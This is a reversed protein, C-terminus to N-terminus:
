KNEETPRLVCFPYLCEDRCCECVANVGPTLTVQTQPNIRPPHLEPALIPLQENVRDDEAGLWPRGRAKRNRRQRQQNAASGFPERPTFGAARIAANWSGFRDFVLSFWPWHGDVTEWRRARADDHRRHRARHPNWDVIAPPEGYLSAWERIRDLILERTWKQRAVRYADSQRHRRECVWCQTPANARGNSGDTRAGCDKCTGGYSRKRAKAKEGTPDRYLESAYSRSVGLLDAIQRATHGRQRLTVAMEALDARQPRTVTNM